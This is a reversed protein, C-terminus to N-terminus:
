AIDIRIQKPKEEEPKPITVELIGDKYKAKISEPKITHRLTFSRNIQDQLTAVRRFPDWRVLTM